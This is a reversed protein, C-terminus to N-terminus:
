HTTGPPQTVFAVKAVGARQCELLVRGVNEYKADLDGRIQLAPQPRVTVMPKLKEALEQIGKLQTEGWYISGTRNISIIVTKPTAQQLEVREQPLSVPVSATVAPITILFVILLVLMVDVLPTTNISSIVDHDAAPGATMAM